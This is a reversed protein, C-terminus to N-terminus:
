SYKIQIAIYLFMVSLVALIALLPWVFKIWKSYPVRGYSLFILLTGYTFYAPNSIGDGFQYAFAATQRSLGVLDALPIIIPMLAVAKGSGSAVLGNLLVVIVFIGIASGIVPLGVLYSSLSHILPDLLGGKTLIWEVGRAVGVIMAGGLSGKAGTLFSNAIDGASMKGLIGALIGAILFAATMDNITWALEIMGYVVAVFTAVLVLLSVVQANGLKKDENASYELRLDSIDIDAVLSSAPNKKVRRAYIILYALSVFCCVLYAIFRLGFGSFIPLEAIQHAIGITYMNTPGIAFGIMSGLIVVGVATMADFGLALIIPVVLPVFPISAEIWGLFGGLVAFIWFLITLVLIDGKQGAISVLRSIATPIAGTKNYIEIAGGVILVLFVINASAILGNPVARFIDFLSLGSSKVAHYTDPLVVSRGDMVARDYAGPTIFFSAIACIVIMSFILVYPNFSLTKQTRNAKDSM